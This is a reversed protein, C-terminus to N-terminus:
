ETLSMALIHELQQLTKTKTSTYIKTTCYRTAIREIKDKITDSCIGSRTGTLGLVEEQCVEKVDIIM